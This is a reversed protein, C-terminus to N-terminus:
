QNFTVQNCLQSESLMQTTLNLRAFNRDVLDILSNKHVYKKRYGGWSPSQIECNAILSLIYVSYFNRGHDCCCSLADDQGM